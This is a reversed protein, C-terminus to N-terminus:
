REAHERRLQSTFCFIAVAILAALGMTVHFAHLGVLSYYTTGFLNTSVTLGEDYILHAWERGTGFLFVGGLVITLLWWFGFAAMKGASLRRVALHITLSSSLLCVTYFIPTHLVDSPKPGTLSKGIYFVYAVVFITFIASEAAILCYMGVRGRSPLQWQINGPPVNVSLASM